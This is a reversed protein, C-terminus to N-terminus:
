SFRIMEAPFRLTITTGKGVVSVIELEGGHAETLAKALPLGLGTGVKRGDGSVQEFATLAKPIDAAAIGKGTDRVTILLGDNPHCQAAFTITGGEPTFKSANSLLNGFIQTIAHADVHVELSATNGILCTLQQKRQATLSMAMRQTSEFIDQFVFWERAVDLKGAASKALDLINSILGLLHQASTKIDYLYENQKASGTEDKSVIQILDTFGIIANLPTRFEHTINAFFNNKSDLAAQLEEKAAVLVRHQQKLASIDTLLRMWDGTPLWVDRCQVLRGGALTIEFPEGTTEPADRLLQLTEGKAEIDQSDLARKLIDRYQSVGMISKSTSRPLYQHMCSNQLLLTGGENFLAFALPLHDVAAQLRMEAHLRAKKSAEEATVDRAAGRYGLFDGTEGSFYPIGSLLFLLDKGDTAEILFPVNSFPENREIHNNISDGFDAQGAITGLAFLPVGMLELAAKGVLATVKPSVATLKLEEDTEFVWDSVLRTLDRFRDQWLQLKQHQQEAATIDHYVLLLYDEGAALALKSGQCRLTQLGDKSQFRVPQPPMKLPASLAACWAKYPPPILTEPTKAVSEYDLFGDNRFVITGSNDLIAFCSINSLVPEAQKLWALLAPPPQMDAMMTRLFNM